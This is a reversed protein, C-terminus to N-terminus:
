SRITTDLFPHTEEASITLYPEFCVKITSDFHTAQVVTELQDHGQSEAFHAMMSMIRPIASVNSTSRTTQGHREFSSSTEAARFLYTTVYWCCDASRYKQKLDVSKGSSHVIKPVLSYTSAFICVSRYILSSLHSISSFSSPFMQGNLLSSAQRGHDCSLFQASM